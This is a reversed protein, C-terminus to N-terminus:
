AAEQERAYVGVARDTTDVEWCAGANDWSEVWRDERVKEEGEGGVWFTQQVDFNRIYLDGDVIKLLVGDVLAVHEFVWSSHERYVIKM